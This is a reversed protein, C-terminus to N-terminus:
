NMFGSYLNCFTPTYLYNGWSDKNDKYHILSIWSNADHKLDIIEDPFVDFVIRKLSASHVYTSPIWDVYHVALRVKPPYQKLISVGGLHTDIYTKVALAAKEDICIFRFISGMELFVSVM